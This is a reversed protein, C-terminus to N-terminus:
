DGHWPIHSKAQKTAREKEAEVGADWASKARARNGAIEGASWGDMVMIRVENQWWEEFIM